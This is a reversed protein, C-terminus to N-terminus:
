KQVGKRFSEWSMKLFRGDNEQLRDVAREGLLIKLESITANSCIMTPLNRSYRANVISSIVTVSDEPKFGDVMGIEDVVLMDISTLQRLVDERTEPASFSQSRRFRDMVDLFLTFFATRNMDIYKGCVANALHTKGTGKDGFLTMCRPQVPADAYARVQQLVNNQEPTATIFNDFSANRYRPLVGAKELEIEHSTRKIEDNLRKLEDTEESQILEAVCKKCVPPRNLISSAKQRGHKSCHIEIEKLSLLANKLSPHLTENEIEIM